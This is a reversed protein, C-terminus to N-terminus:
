QTNLLRNCTEWTKMATGFNALSLTAAYTHTVPWSPWFGLTLQLSRGNRMRQLLAERQRSIQLNTGDDVTELEFAPTDDVRIGTGTYSLDIKSRTRFHLSDPTLQFTVPTGGQGDDMHVPASTLICQSVNRDVMWQDHISIPMEDLAVTITEAEASAPAPPQSQVVDPPPQEQPTPAPQAPKAAPATPRTSVEEPKPTPRVATPTPKTRPKSAASEPKTVPEPRAAPKEVAPTAPVPAPTATATVAPQTAQSTTKPPTQVREPAPPPGTRANYSACGGTTLLLGGIILWAPPTNCLTDM